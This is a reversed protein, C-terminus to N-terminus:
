LLNDMFAYPYTKFLWLKIEGESATALKISCRTVFYHLTMIGGAGRGVHESRVWGKQLLWLAELVHGRRGQGERLGDMM